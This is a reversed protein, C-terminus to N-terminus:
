PRRLRTEADSVKMREDQEVEERELSPMLFSMSWFATWALNPVLLRANRLASCIECSTVPM